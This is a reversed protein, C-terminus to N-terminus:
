CDANLLKCNVPAIPAPLRRSPGAPPQPVHEWQEITRGVADRSVWLAGAAGAIMLLALTLVIALSALRGLRTEPLDLDLDEAAADVLAGDIIGAAAAHGRTLARDCLLNVIRPVGASLDYLRAIAAEDFEVRTNAGAISLRHGVYGSVEEAALPGLEARRSVSANLAGLDTHKLVYTLAPQGILVLQLVRAAPSGM